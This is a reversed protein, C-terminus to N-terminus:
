NELLLLPSAPLLVVGRGVVIVCKLMSGFFVIIVGSASCHVAPWVWRRKRARHAALVAANKVDSLRFLEDFIPPPSFALVAM